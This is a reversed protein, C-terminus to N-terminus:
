FKHWYSFYYFKKGKGDYEDKYYGGKYQLKGNEWYLTGKLLSSWFLWNRQSIICEGSIFKGKKFLGKFKVEGDEYYLTGIKYFHFFFCSM